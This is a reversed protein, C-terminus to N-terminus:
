VKTQNYQLDTYHKHKLDILGELMSADTANKATFVQKFGANLALEFLRQSPVLLSFLNYMAPNEKLPIQLVQLLNELAEGSHLAIVWKKKTSGFLKKLQETSEIPLKREYLECYSVNAGRTNLTDGLHSRGGLGRFIVINESKVQQLSPSQLLTESTMAGIQSQALDTVKAGRQELQRATTEGVAFFKLKTPLQPWYNEIWDFGLAVANQSVFIAKDFHDLNLICKKVASIQENQQIPVIELLSILHTTAGHANLQQEWTKAQASPRTIVVNIGDLLKM